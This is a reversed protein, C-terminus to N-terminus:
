LRTQSYKFLTLLTLEEFVSCYARVFENSNKRIEIKVFEFSLNLGIQSRQDLQIYNLRLNLQIQGNFVLNQHFVM